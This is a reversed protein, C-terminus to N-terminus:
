PSIPCDFPCLKKCTSALDWKDKQFGTCKGIRAWLGRKCSELLINLSIRESDM